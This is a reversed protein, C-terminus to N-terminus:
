SSLLSGMRLGEGFQVREREVFPDRTSRMYDGDAIKEMPTITLHLEVHRSVKGGLMRIGRVLSLFDKRQIAGNGVLSDHRLFFSLM